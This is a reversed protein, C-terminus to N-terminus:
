RPRDTLSRSGRCQPMEFDGANNGNPSGQILVLSSSIPLRSSTNRSPPSISVIATRRVPMPGYIKFIRDNVPDVDWVVSTGAEFYDARKDAMAAEAAPGYDNESRVEVAFIPPGVLFRMPNSPFPGLFYAADPAFSERGSSLPNVEFGTNDGFAEGHGTTTAHDDLSRFIRSSVRSPTRGRPMLPIIRGSILEAKSKVRYLDDLTAATQIASSM